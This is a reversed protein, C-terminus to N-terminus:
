AARDYAAWLPELALLYKRALLHNGKLARAVAARADGHLNGRCFSKDGTLKETIQEYSYEHSVADCAIYSDHTLFAPHDQALIMAKAARHANSSKAFDTLDSSVIFMRLPQVQAVVFFKMKPPACLNCKLFYVDGISIM